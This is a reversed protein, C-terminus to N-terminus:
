IGYINGLKELKPSWKDLQTFKWIFPVITKKLIDFCILM